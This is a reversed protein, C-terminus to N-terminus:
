HVFLSCIDVRFSTDPHKQLDNQKWHYHITCIITIWSYEVYAYMLHPHATITEEAFLTVRAAVVNTNNNEHQKIYDYM